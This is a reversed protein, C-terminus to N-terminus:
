TRAAETPTRSASASGREKRAQASPSTKMAKPKQASTGSRAPVRAVSDRQPGSRVLTRTKKRASIPSLVCSAVSARPACKSEVTATVAPVVSPMSAASPSATKAPSRSVAMTGIRVIRQIAAASKKAKPAAAIAPSPSIPTAIGAM